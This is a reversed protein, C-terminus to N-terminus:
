PLPSPAPQSSFPRATFLGLTMSPRHVATLGKGLGERIVAECVKATTAIRSRSLEGPDLGGQARPAEVSGARATTRREGVSRGTKISSDAPRSLLSAFLRESSESSCTILATAIRSPRPTIFSERDDMAQTHGQPEEGGWGEREWGAGKAVEQRTKLTFGNEAMQGKEQAVIFINLMDLTDETDWKANTPPLTETNLKITVPRTM